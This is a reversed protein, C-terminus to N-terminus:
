LLPEFGLVARFADRDMPKTVYVDFGAAAAERAGAESWDDGTMGVMRCKRLRGDRRLLKVADLGGMGPLNMDIMVVDPQLDHARPIGEEATPSEEVAHGLAELLYRALERYTRSDEILLVTRRPGEAAM